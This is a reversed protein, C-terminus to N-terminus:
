KVQAYLQNLRANAAVHNGAVFLNAVDSLGAEVQKQLADDPKHAKLRQSLRLMKANIFAKDIKIAEAYRVLQTAAAWAAVWDQKSMAQQMEAEAGAGPGLDSTLLGKQRMVTKARNYVGEVDSRGYNGGKSPPPLVIMPAGGASCQEKWRAAAGDQLKVWEAQRAAFAAERAALDKERLALATERSSMNGTTAILQDIKGDVSSVETVQNQIKTEIETRKKVLDTTDGGKATIDKIETEVQDRQSELKKREALLADRRAVLEQQAKLAAPDPSASAADGKNSCGSGGGILTLVLLLGVIRM